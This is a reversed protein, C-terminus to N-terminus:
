LDSRKLNHVNILHNKLDRVILNFNALNHFYGIEYSCKQCKILAYYNEKFLQKVAPTMIESM